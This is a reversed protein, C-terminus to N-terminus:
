FGASLLDACLTPNGYHKAGYFTLGEVVQRVWTEYDAESVGADFMIRPLIAILLTVKLSPNLNENDLAEAVRGSARSMQEDARGYGIAEM